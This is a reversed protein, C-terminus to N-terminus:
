NAPVRKGLTVLLGRNKLFSFLREPIREGVRVKCLSLYMEGIEDFHWTVVDSGGASHVTERVYYEGDRNRGLELIRRQGNAAPTAVSRSGVCIPLDEFGVAPDRKSAREDALRRQQELTVVHVQRNAKWDPRKRQRRPVQPLRAHTM